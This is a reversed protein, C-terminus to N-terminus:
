GSLMGIALVLSVIFASWDRVGFKMAMLHTRNAGGRYGRAELAVALNDARRLAGAFLPLIMPLTKHLRIIWSGELDAGRAKQAAQIKQAEQTLIPVFRLALSVMLAGESVPVKLHHLPKLLRELGDTLDQPTTVAMLLTSLSILVAIRATFLVAAELGQFTIVWGLVPFQFLSDGSHLFLHLTFTIIYLWFFAKLNKWFSAISVGGINYALGSAILLAIMTVPQKVAFITIMLILTCIFKARPDM